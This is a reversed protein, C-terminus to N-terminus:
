KSRREARKFLALAVILCVVAMVVVLIARTSAPLELNAIFSAALTFALLPIALALGKTM